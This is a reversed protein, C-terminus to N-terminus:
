LSNQLFFLDVFCQIEQYSLRNRWEHEKSNTVAVLKDYNRQLKEHEAELEENESTTSTLKTNAEVLREKLQNLADELRSRDQASNSEGHDTNKLKQQKLVNQARIKYSEFEQKCNNYAEQLLSLDTNARSM